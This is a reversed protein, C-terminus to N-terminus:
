REMEAVRARMVSRLRAAMTMVQEAQRVTLESYNWENEMLKAFKRGRAEDVPPKKEKSM